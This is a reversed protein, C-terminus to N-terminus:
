QEPRIGLATPAVLAPAVGAAQRFVQPALADGPRDADAGHRVADPEGADLRRAVDPPKRAQRAPGKPGFPDAGPASPRDVLQDRTLRVVVAALRDDVPA